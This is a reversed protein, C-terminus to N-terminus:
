HQRSKSNTKNRKRPSSSSKRPKGALRKRSRAEGPRPKGSRAKAPREKTPREKTPRETTSYEKNPRDKTPRSQESKSGSSGGKNFKRGGAKRKLKGQGGHDPKHDPPTDAELIPRHPANEDNRDRRKRFPKGDKGGFSKKFPKKPGKRSYGSKPGSRQGSKGGGRAPRAEEITVQEGEANFIDIVGKTHRSIAHLRKLQTPSCLSIAVGTKQARGTRGIRHVYVEPMQPLDYNIVWNLDNVDIGRAAVDTAVLVQIKGTKFKRMVKTRIYQRIDGHLVDVRLDLAHLYSSLTDAQRKTAVFVLVQEGGTEEILEVLKERKGSDTVLHAHQEVTDATINQMKIKVTVSDTLFEESLSHMEDPMTASFFITQHSSTIANCIRRIAPYFGLDIMQDAEDLVLHVTHSLDIVGRKQLDEFRGPTAVLLDVGKKLANIQGDYREGGCVVLYRLGTGHSFMKISAAVQHALERTPALVLAAPAKSRHGEEKMALIKQILPLLYAATKGTGTQALGLLDRGELLVPISQEQIPTPETINNEALRDTLATVLGLSAFPTMEESM